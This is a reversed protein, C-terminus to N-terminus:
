AEYSWSHYQSIANNGFNRHLLLPSLLLFQGNGFRMLFIGLCPAYIRSFHGFFNKFGPFIGLFPANIMDFIRWSRCKSWVCHKRNHSYFKWLHVSIGPQKRCIDLKYHGFWTGRERIKVVRHTEQWTYVSLVSLYLLWSIFLTYWYPVNRISTQFMHIKVCRLRPLITVIKSVSNLNTKLWALRRIKIRFDRFETGLRWILPMRANAARLFSMYCFMHCAM